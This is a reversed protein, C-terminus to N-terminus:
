LGLANLLTDNYMIFRGFFIVGFWAILSVGRGGKCEGARLRRARDRERDTRYWRTSCSCTSAAIVILSM